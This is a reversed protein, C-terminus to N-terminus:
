SAKIAAAAAAAAAARISALAPTANIALLALGILKLADLALRGGPLINNDDDFLRRSGGRGGGGAVNKEKVDQLKLAQRRRLADLLFAPLIGWLVTVPFSGAFAIAKYFIDDDLFSALTPVLISCVRVVRRHDLSCFGFRACVLDTLFQSVALLTGITTTAIACAAFCGVSAVDLRSGSALLADLPDKQTAAVPLQAAVYVLSLAMLLPIGGGLVLPGALSAKADRRDDLRRCAIAVVEGFCLLQCFVAVPWPDGLRSSAAWPALALWNSHAAPDIPVRSAASAIGKLLAVFAVVMSASLLASCKEAVRASVGFALAYAAGAALPTAVAEPVVLTAISRAKAMQSSLTALTALVFCTSALGVVWRTRRRRKGLAEIAVAFISAGEDDAADETADEDGSARRKEVAADETADEDGSARRKEVATQTRVTGEALAISCATLYAWAAVLAVFSPLLGLHATARPLALFGGGVAAGSVLAATELTTSWSRRSPTGAAAPRLFFNAAAAADSPPRNVLWRLPGRWPPPLSGRRGHSNRRGECAGGGSARVRTLTRHTRAWGVIPPDCLALGFAQQYRFLWADLHTLRSLPIAALHRAIAPCATGRLAVCTTAHVGRLSDGLPRHRPDDATAMGKWAHGLSVVDVAAAAALGARAASAIRRADVGEALRADDEFVLVVDSAERVVVAMLIDRWGQMLVRSVKRSQADILASADYLPTPLVRFEPHDFGRSDLHELTAALRARYEANDVTAIVVACGESSEGEVEVCSWWM